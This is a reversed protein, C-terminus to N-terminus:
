DMMTERKLWDQIEKERDVATDTLIGLYILPWISGGINQTAFFEAWSNSYREWDEQVKSFLALEEHSRSKILRAKVEDVAFDLKDKKEQYGDHVEVNMESQTMPRHPYMVNSILEDSAQLFLLCSQFCTEVESPDIPYGSAIEHCIIHRMEFTKKVDSIVKGPDVLMPSPPTEDIQRDRQGTVTKMGDIFSTGLVGTLAGDVHELRSMPLGHAVLEGVTIAKGHVARLLAFDIKLSAGLNESNTLYPEGSDILDKIAARFYGEICAILAVPFYRILETQSPDRNKFANELAFLRLPLEAMASTHLRRKRVNEIEQIIDRTKNM